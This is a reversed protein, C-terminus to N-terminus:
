KKIVLNNIETDAITLPTDDGKWTSETEFSFYKLAIKASEEALIKIFKLYEEM